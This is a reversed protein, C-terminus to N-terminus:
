KRFWAHVDDTNNELCSKVIPNHEQTCFTLKVADTTYGQRYLKRANWMVGVRDTYGSSQINHLALINLACVSGENIGDDYKAWELHQAVTTNSVCPGAFAAIPHALTVAVAIYAAIRSDMKKGEKSSVVRAEIRWKHVCSASSARFTVNM